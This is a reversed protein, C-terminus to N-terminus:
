PRKFREYLITTTHLFNGEINGQHVGTRVEFAIVRGLYDAPIQGYVEACTPKIEPINSVWYHYTRIEAIKRVKLARNGIRPTVNYMEDPSEVRLFYLEGYDCPVLGKETKSFRMVPRIRKFHAQLVNNPLNPIKLSM